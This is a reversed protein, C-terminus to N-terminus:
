WKEYRGHCYVKWECDRRHTLGAMISGQSKNWASWAAHLSPYKTVAQANNIMTVVTSSGFADAGINFAFIVLADFQNQRLAVKINSRVSAIFPQLDKTLLKEVESKTLGNKYTNWQEKGILHGVGITAGATWSTIERGTQDDYPKLRVKEILMLLEMGKASFSLQSAPLVLQHLNSAPLLFNLALEEGSIKLSMTRHTHPVFARVWMESPRKNIEALELLQHAPIASFRSPCESHYRWFKVREPSISHKSVIHDNPTLEIIPKMPRVQLM